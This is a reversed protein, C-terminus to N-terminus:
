AMFTTRQKPTMHITIDPGLQGISIHGADLM